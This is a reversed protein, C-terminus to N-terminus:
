DSSACCQLKHILMKKFHNEIKELYDSLIQTCEHCLTPRESKIMDILDQYAHLEIKKIFMLIFDIDSM